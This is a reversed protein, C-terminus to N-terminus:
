LRHDSEFFSQQRDALGHGAITGMKVDDYSTVIIPPWGDEELDRDSSTNMQQGVHDSM